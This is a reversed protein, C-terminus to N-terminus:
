RPLGNVSNVKKVVRMCELAPSDNLWTRQGDPWDVYSSYVKHDFGVIGVAASCGNAGIDGSVLTRAEQLTM